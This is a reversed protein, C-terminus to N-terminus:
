HLLLPGWPPHAGARGGRGRADTSAHWLMAHLLTAIAAGQSHGAILIKSGAPLGLLYKLIGLDNHYVLIATGWIFGMHVAANAANASSVM